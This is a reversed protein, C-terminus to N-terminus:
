DDAWEKSWGPGSFDTWYSGWTDAYAAKGACQQINVPGAAPVCGAEQGAPNDDRREEKPQAASKPLPYVVISEGLELHVSRQQHEMFLLPGAAVALLLALMVLLWSSM